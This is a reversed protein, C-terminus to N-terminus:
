SPLPLAVPLTPKAGGAPDTPPGSRKDGGGGTGPLAPTIQTGRTGTNGRGTNTTTASGANQSRPPHGTSGNGRGSNGNSRGNNGGAYRRGGNGNSNSAHGRGNSSSSGGRNGNGHASNGRGNRGGSHSSSSSGGRSSAGSDSASSRRDGHRTAGHHRRSHRRRHKHSNSTRTARAGVPGSERGVGGQAAAQGAPAEAAQVDPTGGDSGSTADHVAVGGGAIAGAAMVAGVALKAAGISGLTAFAGGGGAASTAVGGAATGIGAGAGGAGGGMGIGALVSDKLGATPLVPLLAAMARRQSRVQDRYARCGDCGKVHRRLPGRRLAGGSATALQERIQECPIARAERNEILASRAQFVLAKVKMPEVGIVNAVEAQSLDGLEFLVLAERQEDPLERLDRLLEQLDVRQQVEDSLGGLAPMDELEAAQERRARLVSLCRNRAITYLWAKLRIERGNSQLDAYAAAFTHQVADEAEERSGLMHRCFSLVGRHHRDYVVEFAATSGARIQDVLREDPLAALLRRSGPLIRGGTRPLASAEM